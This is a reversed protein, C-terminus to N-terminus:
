SERHPQYVRIRGPQVVWLGHDPGPMRAPDDRLAEALTEVARALIAPDTPHPVRILVIGRHGEPPYILPNAFEADMTVLCRGEDRCCAILDGDSAGCMGQSHVTEVDHGALTLRRMVAHSLNEDLKLKM